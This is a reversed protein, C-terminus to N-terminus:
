PRLEIRSRTDPYITVPVQSTIRPGEALGYLEDLAEEPSLKLEFDELLRFNQVQIQDLHM